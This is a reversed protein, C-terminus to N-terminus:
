HCPIKRLTESRHHSMLIKTFRYVLDCGFYKDNSINKDVNRVSTQVHEVSVIDVHEVSVIDVHEVSVLDVHEKVHRPKVTACSDCTCQVQLNWNTNTDEKDMKKKTKGPVDCSNASTGPLPVRIDHIKGPFNVSYIHYSVLCM